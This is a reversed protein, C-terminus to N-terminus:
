KKKKFKNSDIGLEKRAFATAIRLIPIEIMEDINERIIRLPSYPFNTVIQKIKKYTKIDVFQEILVFYDNEILEQIGWAIEAETIRMRKSVDKINMGKSILEFISKSLSSIEKANEEREKGEKPKELMNSLNENISYNEIEQKYIKFFSQPNCSSCRGCVGSYNTESFYELIFNRKCDRTEAFEIVNELKEYARKKRIQMKEYNIKDFINTEDDFDLIMKGESPLNKISLVGSIELIRLQEKYEQITVGVLSALKAIDVNKFDEYSSSPINRLLSELIIKQKLDALHFLRRIGAGDMSLKISSFKPDNSFKILSHKEFINLITNFKIIPLNISNAFEPIILNQNSVLHSNGGFVKKLSNFVNLFDDKSPYNSEIFFEQLKRDSKNYLLICDSPLGDRGARGAEQYYSELTQTLDCHVVARVNLKNIGMGFANTAVIVESSDNMFRNQTKIRVEKDLGAHYAVANVKNKLLYDTFFEVRKRTGCYVIVPENLKKIIKKLIVEKQNTNITIYSLNKRDFGRIFRNPNKMKLSNVIDDQVEPTATATLAIKPINKIEDIVNAINLYSPRFDHGWESICHAEDVALFSIRIKKLEKIFIKNELREPAIYILKFNGDIAERITDTMETYSQTSNISASRLNTNKLSDVQDQMLAILPSIIIATGDLIAAPLQYCLSKGAGTPMVVLTDQLNLISNIVESQGPLFDSFGFFRTLAAKQNYLDFKM